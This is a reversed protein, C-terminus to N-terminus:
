CFEFKKVGIEQLAAEGLETIAPHVFSICFNKFSRARKVRILVM